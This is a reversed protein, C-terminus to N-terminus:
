WNFGVRFQIERAGIAVGTSQGFTTSDISHTAGGTGGVTTNRHNFANIFLAEFNFRSAGGTSFSKSLGLDVTWLAPGYLYVFQGLEGPTTPPAILDPNARGDPGILREDIFFVNGNPGPRVNVMKQLEEVTIGNLVVGADEQNFTQRGSTLLFPRGSQIRLIGSTSWGGLIQNLVPSDIGFRRDRGVPLEYTWYSQFTHRLAYATPGWDLSKDRLTRYDQVNSAGVTYRDTRARGYTYNATLSLGSSYRQRFQLQLAHYRSSAEDTLLRVEEGAAFPNAQFFNTPYAGSADYGLSNCAPLANGVMRCLYLSNGALSDALRGAQGQQLQTVFTGNTFGSGGAL